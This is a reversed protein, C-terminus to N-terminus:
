IALHGFDNASGLPRCEIAHMNATATMAEPLDIAEIPMRYATRGSM